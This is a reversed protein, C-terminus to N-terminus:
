TIDVATGLEEKQAELQKVISSLKAIETAQRETVTKAKGEGVRLEKVESELRRQRGLSEELRKGM